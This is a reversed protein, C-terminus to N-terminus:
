SDKRTRIVAEVKVVEGPKGPPLRNGEVAEGNIRISVEGRSLHDPNKVTIRYTADRFRRTLTFGEWSSPICPDIILGEFGPRIGLIYQTFVFFSWSATGTLWSNKAEGPLPSAKGSIMQAYVYPELKHLKTYEEYYGPCIARHYEFARDGRGLLTEAMIVWPNNHCFVAGNEKYGPPYSSIEGLEK